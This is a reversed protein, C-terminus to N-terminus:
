LQSQTYLATYYSDFYAVVRSDKIAYARQETGMYQSTAWGIILEREGNKYELITFNLFTPNISDLLTFQYTGKANTQFEALENAYDQFGPSIIDKYVLGNNLASKIAVLYKVGIDRSPPITDKSVKTNLILKTFQLRTCLYEMAIDSSEFETISYLNPTSRKINQITDNLGKQFSSERIVATVRDGILMVFIAIAASALPVNAEDEILGFVDTTLGLILSGVAFLIVIIYLILEKTTM